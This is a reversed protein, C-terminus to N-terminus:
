CGNTPNCADMWLFPTASKWGTFEDAIVKRVKSEDFDGVVSMTANSAGYFDKYFKKLDDLKLAYM